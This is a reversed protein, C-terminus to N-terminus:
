SRMLQYKCMAIGRESEDIFSCFELAPSLSFSERIKGVADKVNLGSRYLINFAKKIQSREDASMGVRRMGVVNLTLIENPSCPKSTCFPPVDKSIGCGGGLMALRGIRVFQHIIVNGSIFAQEGVEVYGALLAGNAVIVGRGLKVNHGCHSFAMLFCANGIETATGTKSGRHITVGERIICNSGIRVYSEGKEFGIDQPVDGIVAGSHIECNDSISTYQLISVHPGIVCGNGIRVEGEIYSFPGVTVNAGLEAKPDIIATKHIM